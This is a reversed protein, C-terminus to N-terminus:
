ASDQILVPSLTHAGTFLTHERGEPFKPRLLSESGCISSSLAKYMLASPIELVQPDPLAEQLFSPRLQGFLVHNAMLFHGAESSQLPPFHAPPTVM